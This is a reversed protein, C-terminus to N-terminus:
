LSCIGSVSGKLVTVNVALTQLKTKSTLTSWSGLSVWRTFAPVPIAPEQLEGTGAPRHKAGGEGGAPTARGPGGGGRRANRAARGANGAQTASSAPPCGMQRGGRPPAPLRGLSAPALRRGPPGGARRSFGPTAAAPTPPPAKRGAREARGSAGPCSAAEERGRRPRRRGRGPGSHQLSDLRLAPLCPCAGSAGGRIAM